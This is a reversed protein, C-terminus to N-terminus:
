MVSKQARSSNHGRGNRNSSEYSKGEARTGIGMLRRAARENRRSESVGAIVLKVLDIQRRVGTKGFINQLHTKITAEAVGLALAVSRVGGTDLIASLVRSEATTLEYFQAITDM